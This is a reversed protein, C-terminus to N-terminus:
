PWVLLWGRGPQHYADVDDLAITLGLHQRPKPQGPYDRDLGVEESKGDRTLVLQLLAENRGGELHAYMVTKLRARAGHGIDVEQDQVLEHRVPEVPMPPEAARPASQCGLLAALGAISFRRWM